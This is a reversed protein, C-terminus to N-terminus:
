WLTVSEYVSPGNLKFLSLIKGAIFFNVKVQYYLYVQLNTNISEEVTFHM